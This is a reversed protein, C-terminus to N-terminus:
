IRAAAQWARVPWDDGSVALEALPIRNWLALLVEHAPGSLVTDAPGDAREAVLPDASVTLLWSAGTDTTRVALTRPRESRLKAKPRVLFGTLLEDIGDTAVDPDVPGVAGAALEADVRHITAEHTQRRVWFHLPTPAPLFSWCEVDPPAAAITGLLAEHGDLYWAVVDDDGIAGPEPVGFPTREQARERLYSAAWRHVAGTHLLLDRVVWGPCSPVPADVGAQSAAAGLRKGAVALAPVLASIEM